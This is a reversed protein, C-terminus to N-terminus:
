FMTTLFNFRIGGDVNGCFGCRATWSRKAFFIPFVSYAGSDLKLRQKERHPSSVIENGIYHLCM